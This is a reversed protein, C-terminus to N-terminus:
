SALRMAGGPRITLVRCDATLIEVHACGCGAAQERELREETGPNRPNFVVTSCEPTSPYLRSM